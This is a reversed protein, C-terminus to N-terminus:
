CRAPGKSHKCEDDSRTSGQNRPCINPAEDLPRDFELLQLGFLKKRLCRIKIETLATATKVFDEIAVIAIYSHLHDKIDNSITIYPKSEISAGGRDQIGENTPDGSAKRVIM